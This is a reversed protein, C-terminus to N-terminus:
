KKKQNKKSSMQKPQLFMMLLVTPIIIFLLKPYIAILLVIPISAQLVWRPFAALDPWALWLFFLPLGIRMSAAMPKVSEVHGIYSLVYTIAAVAL